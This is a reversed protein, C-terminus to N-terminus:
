CNLRKKLLWRPSSRPGSTHPSLRPPVSYALLIGGVRARCCSNYPQYIFVPRMHRFVAAKKSHGGPMKNTEQIGAPDSLTWGSRASRSKRGPRTSGARRGANVRGAPRSVSSTPRKKKNNNQHWWSSQAKVRVRKEKQSRNELYFQIQLSVWMQFPTWLSNACVKWVWVKWVTSMQFITKPNAM